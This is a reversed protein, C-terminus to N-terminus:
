YALIVELPHTEKLVTTSSKSTLIMSKPLFSISTRKSLKKNVKFTMQMLVGRGRKEPLHQPLSVAFSLRGQEDDVERIPILAESGFFSGEPNSIFVDSIIKPDYVIELQAGSVEKGKTDIIVDITKQASKSGSLDVSESAFSLSAFPALTPIATPFATVDEIVKKDRENKVALFILVLTTLALALILISTKKPM